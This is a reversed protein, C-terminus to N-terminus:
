WDEKCPCLFWRSGFPQEDVIWKTGRLLGSMPAIRRPSYVRFVHATNVRLSAGGPNRLGRIARIDVMQLSLSAIVPSKLDSKTVTSTENGPSVVPPLDSLTLPQIKLSPAVDRPLYM